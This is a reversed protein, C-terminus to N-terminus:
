RKARRYDEIDIHQESLIPKPSGDPYRDITKMDREPAALSPRASLREITHQLGLRLEQERELLRYIRDKESKLDRITKLLRNIEVRQYDIVTQDPGRNPAEGAASSEQIYIFLGDKDVFGKFEGHKYRLVLDDPSCNLQEAAEELPLADMESLDLKVASKDGPHLNAASCDLKDSEVGTDSQDETQRKQGADYFPMM